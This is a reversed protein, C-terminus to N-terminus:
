LENTMRFHQGCLNEQKSSLRKIDGFSYNSTIDLSPKRVEGEYNNKFTSLEQRKACIQM